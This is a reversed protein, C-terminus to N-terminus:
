QGIIVFAGWHYPEHYIARMEKQANRLATFKDQGSLWYRYFTSILRTTSEDNVKWLSMLVSRAGAMLFARQLGYVGEGNRVEGLGTECASLVVLETRNLKLNMAEYATLVGDEQELLGPYTSHLSTASGALLLGSRLLPNAAINQLHIGFARSDEGKELDSLFYAHTAIHLVRPNEIQKINEELAQDDVLRHVQWDGARMIEQVNNVEDLTGPLDYLNYNVAESQSFGPDQANIREALSSGSDDLLALKEADRAKDFDPSGILWALPPVASEPKDEKETLERTSSLMRLRFQDLLFEGSRVDYLSNLSIKNFIGDPAVFVSRTEEALHERIPLWYQQYSHHDEIRYRIANKYYKFHKNELERGDPLLALKPSEMGPEIILAVYFLLDKSNREIRIIEVAAEDEQLRAQVDRWNITRNEITQAFLGSAASLQKELENATDELEQLEIGVSRLEALSFSYYRALKEKVAVWQEYLAILREDESNLISRRTRSGMDLLLAKTILQVNYLAGLLRQKRAHDTDEHKLYMQVAFDRFTHIVPEIRSYFASKEKESLAPFYERIQRSYSKVVEDFLVEAEDFSGSRFKLLALGYLAYAYDPHKEGLVQRRLEVAQENLPLAKKYEGLDQYLLALNLLTSLYLPHDDGLIGRNIELAEELLPLAKKYAQQNQYFSALNNLAVAYSPHQRGLTYQDVELAELLFAEAEEYRETAEYLAALNQIATAYDPHRQGYHTGLIDKANLLLPEAAEYNGLLLYLNAMEQIIDAYGPNEKGNIKRHIGLAQRLLPEAENYNGLNIELRALNVLGDAYTPHRSGYLLENKLLSTELLRRAEEFRAEQMCLLGLNSLVRIYEPHDLGLLKRKLELAQRLLQDAKRYDGKEQLLLAYNSQISAYINGPVGDDLRYQMELAERYFIESETYYGLDHYLAAMSTIAALYRANGTDATKSLDASKKFYYIASDYRATKQFLLAQNYHLTALRARYAQGQGALWKELQKFLKAAQRNNGDDLLLLAFNNIASVQAESEVQLSDPRLATRYLTMARDRKGDQLLCRAYNDMASYFDNEEPAEHSFYRYASRLYGLARGPDAQSLLYGLNNLARHLSLADHESLKSEADLYTQYFNVAKEYNGAQQHAEALMLLLKVKFQGAKNDGPLSRHAEELAALRQDGTQLRSRYYLLRAYYVDQGVPQWARQLSDAYSLADDQLERLSSMNRFIRLELSKVSDAELYPRLSTVAQKLAQHAERSQSDQQLLHALNLWAEGSRKTDGLQRAGDVEQQSYRLGQEYWGATYSIMSLLRLQDLYEVTKEKGQQHLYYICQRGQTLAEPLKGAHYLEVARDCCAATGQAALNGSLLLLFLLFWLNRM